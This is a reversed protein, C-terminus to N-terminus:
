SRSILRLIMPYLTDAVQAGVYIDFRENFVGRHASDITLFGLVTTDSSLKTITNTLKNETQLQMQRIPWVITSVYPLNWRQPIFFNLAALIFNFERNQLNPNHSNLYNARVPLNNSFFYRPESYEFLSQFDTNLSLKDNEQNSSESDKKDCFRAADTDRKYTHIIPETGSRSPRIIKISARCKTATLMSFISAFHDLCDQINSNVIHVHLPSDESGGKSEIQDLLTHQDRIIHSISHLDNQINAYKEKRLRTIERFVFGVLLVFFGMSVVLRDIFQSIEIPASTYRVLIPVVLGIVLVWRLSQWMPRRDKMTESLLKYQDFIKSADESM